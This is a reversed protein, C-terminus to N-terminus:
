SSSRIRTMLRSRSIAIMDVRSVQRAKVGEAALRLDAGGTTSTMQIVVGDQNRMESIAGGVGLTTGASVSTYIGDIDQPSTLGTVRGATSCETVGINGVPFGSIDASLTPWPLDSDRQGLQVGNGDRSLRWRVGCCRRSGSRFVCNVPQASNHPRPRCHSSCLAHFQRRQCTPTTPTCNPASM